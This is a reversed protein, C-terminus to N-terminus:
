VLHVSELTRKMKEDKSPRDYHKRLTDTTADCWHSIHERPVDRNGARTIACKRVGHPSRSMECETPKRKTIENAQCEQCDCEDFVPSTTPCTLKYVTRQITPRSIRGERTTFLPELGNEDTEDKRNAEIYGRITDLLDEDMPIHRESKEKKKLTLRELNPRHVTEIKPPDAYPHFHDLDFSRITRSRLGRKMMLSWIAHQRTYPRYTGLWDLIQEGRKVGLKPVGERESVDPVNLKKIRESIDDSLGRQCVTGESWNIFAKLTYLHQKMALDQMESKAEVYNFYGELEWGDIDSMYTISDNQDFWQEFWRRTTTDGAMTEDPADTSARSQQYTDWTETATKDTLQTVTRRDSQRQTSM